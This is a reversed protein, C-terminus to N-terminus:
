ITEFSKALEPCYGLLSFFTLFSNLNISFKFKLTNEGNFCKKTIISDKNIGVIKVM